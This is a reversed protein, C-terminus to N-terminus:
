YQGLIEHHYISIGVLVFVVAVAVMVLTGVINVIIDRKSVQVGGHSSLHWGDVM